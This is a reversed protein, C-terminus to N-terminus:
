YDEWALSNQRVDPQPGARMPARVVLTGPSSEIREAHLPKSAGLLPSWIMVDTDASPARAFRAIGDKDTIALETADVVVIYGLMSDHINCGLTVIGEHLFKIRPTEGGRYLPLEFSNPQSFSYVHHSVSDSNPFEVVTGIRIATLQPVFQKNIQDIVAPENADASKISGAKASYWVVANVVSQGGIDTVSVRVGAPAEGAMSKDSRAWFILVLSSLLLTRILASRM